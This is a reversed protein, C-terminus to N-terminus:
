VHDEYAEAKIDLSNEPCIYNVSYERKLGDSMAKFLIM